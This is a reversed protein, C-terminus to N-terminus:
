AARKRRDDQLRRLLGKPSTPRGILYGQAADCGLTRLMDLLEQTEVGEAVVTRDLSHALAITSQVMVLDSRHDPMAKIFSQDIKIESAPVKKLYDLTSLGTGYDDISLRIGLERLAILPALDSGDRALAATETLELTLRAPDLGHRALVARVEIPLSKMTLMRASLNVAIDFPAGERNFRVAAAIAQDLVFMTLKEIRGGQEAAGVFEQPSIPGKEPHTWRALAEAGRLRGSKLDLQPQFAVWVEGNEIAQDLQSLLSLRWNADKMREPDHYKWKLGESAAEDAAVLASNLRQSITRGSGIEVGFTVNLDYATGDIKAPGRFLSHLAEVHHGIATGPETLWAFIGEDGQFIVHDRAGVTLRQVIQGVLAGEGEGSVAAALQPYNVIRAVILAHDRQHGSARLATLNPLGSTANVMGRSRYRRWGLAGAVCSLLFLAPTIDVYWQYAESVIPAGLAAVMGLSLTLVQARASGFRLALAVLPIMALLAPWWGLEVPVGRKLTEAGLVHVFVGGMKGRGPILFNDGINESTAGLIVTKGRIDDGIRGRVVDLVSHVPVTDLDIRYNIPFLTDRPGDVGSLVSAFSPYSVGNQSMNFPVRWSAGQWNYPLSILGLQAHKAFAAVPRGNRAKGAGEGVRLRVPLVVRGSRELASAFARDARADTSYEFMIDLVIKSAGAKTLRDIIESHVARKWPWAGLARQSADDITIVAIDGSAAVPNAKNRAIRLIDELPEGMHALGFLLSLVLSIALLRWPRQSKITPGQRMGARMTM